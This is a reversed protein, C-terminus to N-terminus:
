VDILIPIQVMGIDVEVDGSRRRFETPFSQLYEYLRVVSDWFYMNEQIYQIMRKKVSEVVLTDVYM